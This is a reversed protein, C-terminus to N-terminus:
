ALPDAPTDGSDDGGSKSDSDKTKLVDALDVFVLKDEARTSVLSPKITTSARFNIHVSKINGSVCDEEKKTGKTRATLSFVGFDAINVTKGNLLEGMMCEVFNTLVSKIDGLSLSSTNKMKAAILPLTSSQGLTVLQPYYKGVSTKDGPKKRLIKKFIISM